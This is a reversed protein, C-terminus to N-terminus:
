YELCLRGYEDTTFIIDNWRDPILAILRGEEDLQFVVTKIFDNFKLKILKTVYDVFDVDLKDITISKEKLKKGNELYFNILEIETKLKNNNSDTYENCSQEWGNIIDIMSNISNQMSLLIKTTTMEESFEFPIPNINLGGNILDIHNIM